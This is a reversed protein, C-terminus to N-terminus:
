QRDQAWRDLASAHVERERDVLQQAAARDHRHTRELDHRERQLQRERDRLAEDESAQQELLAELAQEAKDLAERSPRPKPKPKAKQRALSKPKAADDRSRGDAARDSAPKDPPLAALQEEESGRLRKIVTGPKELPERTLEPDDVLEAVGRAFLNADSGWAKLAAKQSPAAVYADHFGIPTRYVKLKQNRAM